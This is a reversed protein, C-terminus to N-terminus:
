CSVKLCAEACELNALESRPPLEYKGLSWDTKKGFVAQGEEKVQNMLSENGMLEYLAWTMMSASTEHGALMFTKFEDRIQHVARRPMSSSTAAAPSDKEYADLVLDLIDNKKHQEDDGGSSSAQRERWRTQILNSVYSNLQHVRYLHRWWFPFLFCVNRYPHWVRKNCEDVIPLYLKGFTSDSEDASISLFTKSIVQLTLHRLSEVLDVPTNGDEAAADLTTQFRQVAQLTVRPIIDLVHIRLATSMKLRQKMWDQHESTVIGKGLIVMFPAYTFSVDKKVSRIKSQLVQKLHHPNSISLFTRGLLTFGFIGVGFREHWGKLCEWPTEVVFAIALGLVPIPSPVTPMGLTALSLQLTLHMVFILMTVLSVICLVACHSFPVPPMWESWFEPDVQERYVFLGTSAVASLLIGLLFVLMVSDSRQSALVAQQTELAKTKENNKTEECM